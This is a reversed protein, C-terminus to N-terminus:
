SGSNKDDDGGPPPTFRDFKGFVKQSYALSDFDKRMPPLDLWNHLFLPRLDPNGVFEIGFFEHVDREYMQAVEWLNMISQIKPNDRPIRAKVLAQQYDDYSFLIYVVEFQNQEIWDVATLLALQKFGILQMYALVAVNQERKIEVSFQHEDIVNVKVDPFNEKIKEIIEQQNM